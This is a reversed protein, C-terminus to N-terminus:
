TKFLLPTARVAPVGTYAVPYVVFVVIAFDKGDVV